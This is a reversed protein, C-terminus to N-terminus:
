PRRVVRVERDVAHQERHEVAAHVERVLHAGLDRLVEAVLDELGGHRAVDPQGLRRAVALRHQEVVQAARARLAVEGDGVLEEVRVNITLGGRLYLRRMIVSSGFFRLLAPEAAPQRRQRGVAPRCGDAADARDAGLLCRVYKVAPM